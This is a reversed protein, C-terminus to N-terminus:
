LVGLMSVEQEAQPTGFSLGCSIESIRLEMREIESMVPISARKMRATIICSDV